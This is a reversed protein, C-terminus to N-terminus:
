PAGPLAEISGLVEEFVPNLAEFPGRETYLVLLYGGNDRLALRRRDLHTVRDWTEVDVWPSGRLIRRSQSAIERRRPDSAADLAYRAMAQSADPPLRDAGALLSDFTAQIKASDPRSLATMDWWPRWFATKQPPAAYALPPGRLSQIRAFADKRRGELWWTRAAQIERAIGERTAPGLDALSIQMEGNRFIQSRGHDLHEWGKPVTFRVRHSGVELNRTETRSCASGVALAAGLALAFGYRAPLRM